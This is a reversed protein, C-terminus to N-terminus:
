GPSPRCGTWRRSHPPRVPNAPTTDVLIDYGGAEDRTAKDTLSGFIQSLVSIFVLTFVVLSYMGLTM